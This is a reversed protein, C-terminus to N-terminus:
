FAETGAPLPPLEIPVDEVPAKIYWVNVGKNGPLNWATKDAGKRRLLDWVMQPSKYPVRRADLYKFLDSSRFFVTDGERYPQGLLVKEKEPAMVQETLFGIIREWLQGTPSADEPLMVVDASPLIQHLAELWKTPSMHVAIVNAQALCARNFEDRSYLQTHTVLIRRGNIELAFLPDDGQNPSEYRTLGGLAIGTNEIGGAEGVGYTRTRCLRRNCVANLPPQKCKYEYNKKKHSKVIEQLEDSRIGAMATNYRDAEDQWTDRFRKKLYIVVSFMGDKKTGQVFGGSKELTQLCPPGDEFIASENPAQWQLRSSPLRLAEAKEIFQELTGPEGDIIAPRPSEEVNFYPLNIGNGVDDDGGRVSQKPFQETKASLGLAATWEALRDRMWDAPVPEETFCYLHVGGSKSRCVVLPLGLEKVHADAKIPDSSYNDYDIAGFSVTLDERLMILTLGATGELHNRYTQLTPAGRYTTYKGIMKGSPNKGRPKFTTYAKEYGPFLAAFREVDLDSLTM